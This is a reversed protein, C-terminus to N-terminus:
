HLYLANMELIRKQLDIANKFGMEALENASETLADVFRESLMDFQELAIRESIGADHAAKKFHERSIKDILIENGISFAMNHTSSEYVITSVLDYAPALRVSKMDESYLLSFNKIHGDTNGILYNFVIVDWLRLKDEIPNSSFKKLVDFMQGLYNNNNYNEYKEMSSIGLAQAFNEQHLRFPAPM